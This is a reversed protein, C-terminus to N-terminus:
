CCLDIFTVCFAVFPLLRLYLDISLIKTLLRNLLDHLYRCPISEMELVLKLAKLIRFYSWYKKTQALRLFSKLSHGISVEWKSTLWSCFVQFHLVSESLFTHWSQDTVKFTHTVAIWLTANLLM